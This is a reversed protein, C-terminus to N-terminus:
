AKINRLIEDPTIFNQAYGLFSTKYRNYNLIETVIASIEINNLGKLTDLITMPNYNDKKSQEIIIMSITDASTIDFGKNQFFGSMASLVDSTIEIPKSYYTNFSRLTINSSNNDKKELPLNSYM